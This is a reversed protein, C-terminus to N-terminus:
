ALGLLCAAKYLLSRSNKRQEETERQARRGMREMIELQREMETYELMRLPELADYPTRIARDIVQDGNPMDIIRFDFYNIEMIIKGM